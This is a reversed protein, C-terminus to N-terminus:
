SLRPGMQSLAPHARHRPASTLARKLGAGINGGPAAQGSFVGPTDTTSGTPGLAALNKCFWMLLGSNRLAWSTPRTHWSPGEPGRFHKAAQSFGGGKPASHVLQSGRIHSRAHDYLLHPQLYQLNPPPFRLLCKRQSNTQLSFQWWQQNNSMYLIQTHLLM